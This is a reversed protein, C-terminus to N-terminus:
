ESARSDGDRVPQSQLYEGLEDVATGEWLEVGGDYAARGLMHGSVPSTLAIFVFVTVARTVVPSDSYFFTVSVMILGLGVTSAKTVAYLRTYPDPLRLLGISAILVFIAGALMLAIGLFQIM